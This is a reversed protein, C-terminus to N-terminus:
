KTEELKRMDAEMESLERERNGLNFAITKKLQNQALIEEDCGRLGHHCENVQMKKREIADRLATVGHSEM